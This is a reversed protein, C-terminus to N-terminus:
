KVFSCINYLMITKKKSEKKEGIAWCLFVCFVRMKAVENKENKLLFDDIVVVISSVFSIQNCIRKKERRV